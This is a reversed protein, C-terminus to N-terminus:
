ENSYKASSPSHRSCLSHLYGALPANCTANVRMGFKSWIHFIDNTQTLARHNQPNQLPNYLVLLFSSPSCPLFYSSRQTICYGLEPQTNEHIISFYQLIHLRTARRQELVIVMRNWCALKSRFRHSREVLVWVIRHLPSLSSHYLLTPKDMM